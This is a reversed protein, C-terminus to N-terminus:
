GRVRSRWGNPTPPSPSRGAASPPCATPTRQLCSSGCRGSRRVPPRSARPGSACSTWSGSAGYRALLGPNTLLVHREGALLADRVGQMTDRVATLLTAWRDGGPGKADAAVIGAEWRVNHDGAHRRLASVILHDLDVRHAGLGELLQVASHHRSVSVTLVLYGGREAHRRLREDVGQAEVREDDPVEAMAGTSFRTGSAGFATLGSAAPPPPVRFGAPMLAGTPGPGEDVWELHVTQRLLEDLERRPPLAAAAPFRTQVRKRVEAESLVGAGLLAARALRVAHAAPMGRPYVELRSSSAAMASAATALRM